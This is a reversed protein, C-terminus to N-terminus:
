SIVKRVYNQATVAFRLFATDSGRANVIRYGRADRQLFGGLMRVITATWELCKDTNEHLEVYFHDAPPELTQERVLHGNAIVVAGRVDDPNTSFRFTTELVGPPSNPGGAVFTGHAHGMGAFAAIMAKSDLGGAELENTLVMMYANIATHAAKEEIRNFESEGLQAIIADAEAAEQATLKRIGSTTTM